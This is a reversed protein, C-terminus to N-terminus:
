EGYKSKLQYIYEIVKPNNWEASGRIRGIEEGKKNILVTHPSTFIGFDSAVAGKEDVYFDVDKAGFRQLFRKQEAVSAWEENPSILVLRIGNNKVANHFENLSHLEKICPGCDRSWFVAVVFEGAFDSLKYNRGSQHIIKQETVHRPKPFINVADEKAEAPSLGLLLGFIAAFIFHKYM